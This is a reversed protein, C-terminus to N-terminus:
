APAATRELAEQVTPAAVRRLRLALLSTAAIAVVAVRFAERVGDVLEAPSDTFGLSDGIDPLAAYVINDDISIILQATALLVLVPWGRRRVQNNQVNSMSIEGIRNSAM